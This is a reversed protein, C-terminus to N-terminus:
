QVDKGGLRREARQVLEIIPLDLAAAMSFAVPMPIDREGALYRSLTSAQMGLRAAMDKQKMDKAAMEAKVQMVLAAQIDIGYNGM